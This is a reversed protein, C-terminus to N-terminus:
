HFSNQIPSSVEWSILKIKYKEYAEDARYGSHGITGDTDEYMYDIWKLDWPQQGIDISNDGMYYRPNGPSFYLKLIKHNFDDVVDGNSLDLLTIYNEDNNLHMNWKRYKGASGLSYFGAFECIFTGESVKTEDNLEYVLKYDFEGYTIEPAPPDPMLSFVAGSMVLFYLIGILLLSIIIFLIVIIGIAKRKKKM